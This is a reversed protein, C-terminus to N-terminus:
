GRMAWWEVRLHRTSLCLSHLSDHAAASPAAARACVGRHQATCAARAQMMSRANAAADVSRFQAFAYNRDPFTKVRELGGCPALAAHLAADNVSTGGPLGIWLM